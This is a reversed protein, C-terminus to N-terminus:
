CIGLLNKNGKIKGKQRLTTILNTRTQNYKNQIQEDNM